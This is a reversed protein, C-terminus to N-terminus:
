PINHETVYRFAPDWSAMSQLIWIHWGFTVKGRRPNKSNKKKKDKKKNNKTQKPVIIYFQRIPYVSFYFVWLYLGEGWCFKHTHPNLYAPKRIYLIKPVWPCRLFCNSHASHCVCITGSFSVKWEILNTLIDTLGTLCWQFGYKVLNMSYLLKSFFITDIFTFLYQWFMRSIEERLLHKGM